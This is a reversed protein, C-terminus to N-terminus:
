LDDFHLSFIQKQYTLLNINAYFRAESTFIAVNLLTQCTVELYNVNFPAFRTFGCLSIATFKIVKIDEASRLDLMDEASRLDLM